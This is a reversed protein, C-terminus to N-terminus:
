GLELRVTTGSGPSSVVSIRGGADRVLSELGRLGFHGGDPVAGADFGRGDDIVELVTGHGGRDVRVLLHGPDAHRLANRVAEQAVRWVLAAGADDLGSLDGSDVETSVSSAGAVLDELAAPLRSPTLEPPHIEVLLSRLGRLSQRVSGSLRDLEATQAGGSRAAASLSFATGALDQVVSDHLDRAIRRREADSADVAARLLRERERAARDLRRTLVWLLPATALVLVGLGALTIPRFAAFVEQQRKSIDAASYYVEFLLAEGEPSVIRTYVELLGGSGREYRNEPKSLDSQEADVGGSVLIAREDDDLAFEEGILRTDDSYVIRGDSNWIKIRKVDDVALRRVVTQDFRDLAGPDGDVLGEPVAPEVVSRAILRTTAVAMDIAEDSAARDSLRGTALSVVLLTLSGAVLFQTLPHRLLRM